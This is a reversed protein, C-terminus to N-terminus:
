IGLEGKYSGICLCIGPDAEATLVNVCYLTLQGAPGKDSATNSNKIQTYVYHRMRFSWWPAINRRFYVIYRFWFGIHSGEPRM